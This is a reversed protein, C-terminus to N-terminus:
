GPDRFSFAWREELTFPRSSSIATRASQLAAGYSNTPSDLLCLLSAKLPVQETEKPAATMTRTWVGSDNQIEMVDTAAGIVMGEVTTMPPIPVLWYQM